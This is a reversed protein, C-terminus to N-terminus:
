EISYNVKYFTFFLLEGYPDETISVARNSGFYYTDNISTSGFYTYFNGAKTPKETNLWLLFKDKWYLTQPVIKTYKYVEGGIHYYNYYITDTFNNSHTYTKVIYTRKGKNPFKAPLEKTSIVEENGQYYEFLEKNSKGLFDEQSNAFNYCLAVVVALLTKKM